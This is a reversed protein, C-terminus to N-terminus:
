SGSLTTLRLEFALGRYLTINLISSSTSDYRGDVMFINSSSLLLWKIFDNWFLILANGDLGTEPLGDPEILDDSIDEESSIILSPRGLCFFSEIALNGEPKTNV